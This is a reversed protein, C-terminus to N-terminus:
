RETTTEVNRRRSRRPAAVQTTDVAGSIQQTEPEDAGTEEDLDIQEFGERQAPSGDPNKSVEAVRDVVPQHEVTTPDNPDTAM